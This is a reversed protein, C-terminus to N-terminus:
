KKQSKHMLAIFEDSSIAPSLLFGQYEDCALEQLISLQQSTEVGEAIVTLNLSQGLAVMASTITAVKGGETLGAIYSRDIKMVDVPLETLYGIASDGTGFDDISIKVGLKKLDHLQGIVDLDGSLVGRESLELDLCFPSVDHKQLLREVTKVFGGNMLQCRSVNVSMRFSSDKGLQWAKLQKCAEDLVFEGIRIMLGSKEAVPVFDNPSIYSMDQQQWRLLAEAGVIRGSNVDVLPQYALKLENGGLAEHLMNEIKLNRAAAADADACHYRFGGGRSEADRMANIARQLLSDADEADQPYVAVGVCPSLYVTQGSVQVPRALREALQQRVVTLEDTEASGTLMLGFRASDLSASAATRLGTTHAQCSGAESLCKGLRASIEALVLNATEQGMAEIVLGFRNFGIVFVGLL